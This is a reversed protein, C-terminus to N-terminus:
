LPTELLISSDTSANNERKLSAYKCPIKLRSPTGSIMASVTTMAVPQKITSDRHFSSHIVYGTTSQLTSTSGQSGQNSGNMAQTKRSKTQETRCVM